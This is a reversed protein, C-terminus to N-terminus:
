LRVVVVRISDARYGGRGDQVSYWWYVLAETTSASYEAIQAYSLELSGRPPIAPCAPGACAAWDVLPAADGALVFYNVPRISGNAVHLASDAATATVPGELLTLPGNGCGAAVLAAAAAVVAAPLIRRTAPGTM